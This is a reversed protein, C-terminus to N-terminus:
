EVVRLADTAHVPAIATKLVVGDVVGVGVVDGLEEGGGEPFSQDWYTCSAEPLPKVLSVSMLGVLADDSEGRAPQGTARVLVATHGLGCSVQELMIKPCGMTAVM